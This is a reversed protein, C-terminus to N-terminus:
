RRKSLCFIVVHHKPTNATNAVKTPTPIVLRGILTSTESFSVVVCLLCKGGNFSAITVSQRSLSVFVSVKDDSSLLAKNALM